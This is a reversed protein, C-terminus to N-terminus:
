EGKKSIYKQKRAEAEIMKGREESTFDSGGYDDYNRSNDIEARKRDLEKLEAIREEDTMKEREKKVKELHEFFEM